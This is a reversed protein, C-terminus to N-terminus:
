PRYCFILLLGQLCDLFSSCIRSTSSFYDSLQSNRVQHSQNANGDRLRKARLLLDDDENGGSFLSSTSSQGTVFEPTSDDDSGLLADLDDSGTSEGSEEEDSLDFASKPSVIEPQLMTPVQSVPLSPAKSNTANTAIYKAFSASGASVVESEDEEDNHLAAKLRAAKEAEAQQQQQQQELLKKRKARNGKLASPLRGGPTPPSKPKSDLTANADPLPGFHVKKQLLRKEAKEKAEQQALAKAKAEAELRQQRLKEESEQREKLLKANHEYVVRLKGKLIELLSLVEACAQSLPLTLPKNFSHSPGLM